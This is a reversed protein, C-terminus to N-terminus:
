HVDGYITMKTKMLIIAFITAMQHSIPHNVDPSKNLSYVSIQPQYFM